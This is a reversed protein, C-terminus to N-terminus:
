NPTSLTLSTEIDQRSLVNYKFPALLMGSKLTSLMM